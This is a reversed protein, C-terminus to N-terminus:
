DCVDWSHIDDWIISGKRITDGNFNDMFDQQMTNGFNDAFAIGSIRIQIRMANINEVFGSIKSRGDIHNYQQQGFVTVGTPVNSTATGTYCIRDGVKKLERAKWQAEVSEKFKRSREEDIKKNEALWLASRERAKPILNKPDNKEFKKILRNLEDLSISYSTLREYDRQKNREEIEQAQQERKKRLERSDVYVALGNDFRHTEFEGLYEGLATRCVNKQGFKNPLVEITGGSAKCFRDSDKAIAIETAKQGKDDIVELMLSSRVIELKPKIWADYTGQFDGKHAQIMEDTLPASKSPVSACGSIALLIGSTIVVYLMNPQFLMKYQM